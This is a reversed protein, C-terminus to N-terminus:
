PAKDKVCAIFFGYPIPNLFNYFITALINCRKPANDSM